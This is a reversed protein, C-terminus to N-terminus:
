RLVWAALDPEDTSEVVLFRHQTPPAFGAAPWPWDARTLLALPALLRLPRNSAVRGARPHLRAATM